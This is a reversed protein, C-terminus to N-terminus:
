QLDSLSRPGPGIYRAAPRILRAVRKQELVHASWGAVRACAFMAPTLKARSTQSTSCSRRGTSSTRRSCATPIARRCAGRARGVRARAGDRRPPLRAGRRNARAAPCTPGRRPLRSARLGHHPRRPLAPRGRLGDRRGDGRGRRDDPHRTGACRRPATRVPDRDGRVDRRRRRRRDFRRRSGHVDLREARAGGHLDLVHRHRHRAAPGGRRALAASLAGSRDEWRRRRRRPRLGDHGDAVRASRAVISMVQASLRGLDDRAQEDSIETVKGLSGSAPSGRSRPRHTRRRTARSPRPSTRTRSRCARSSARTSSSGGCRRTRSTGSSSRSTSAGTASRM